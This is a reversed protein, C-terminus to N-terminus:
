KEHIDIQQYPIHLDAEALGDQITKLVARRIDPRNNPECFFRIKYLIASEGFDQTGKLECSEVGDIGSIQMCIGSLVKYAEKRSVEYPLPLDIDVLHTLRRIMSINRNAVSLVSRDELFEIKTTRATFSIVVGDKGNYEVADGVSFYKDSMIVFGAFIDQLADKVALAFIIVVIGVIASLGTLNIGFSQLIMIAGITIVIIRAIRLTIRLIHTKRLDGSLEAKAKLKKHVVSLAICAGVTLILVIVIEIVSVRSVTVTSGNLFQLILSEM